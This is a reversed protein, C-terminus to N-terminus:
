TNGNEEQKSQTIRTSKSGEEENEENQWAVHRRVSKRTEVRLLFTLFFFYSSMYTDPYTMNHTRVTGNNSDSRAFVRQIDLCSSVHKVLDVSASVM